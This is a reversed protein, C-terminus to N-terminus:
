HVAFLGLQVIASSGGQLGGKGSPNQQLPSNWASKVGGVVCSILRNVVGGKEPPIRSQVNKVRKKVVESRIQFLAMWLSEGVHVAKRALVRRTGM